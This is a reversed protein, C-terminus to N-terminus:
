QSQLESTHEESRLAADEEPIARTRLQVDFGVVRAGSVLLFEGLDALYRRSLPQREGLAAFSEEDVLVLVIEPAPVRDRLFLFADVARTEWGAFVGVRSLATVGVSVAVGLLLAQAVRRLGPSSSRSRSM